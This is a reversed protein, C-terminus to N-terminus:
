WATFGYCIIIINLFIRQNPNNLFLHSKYFISTAFFTIAGTHSSPMGFGKKPSKEPRPQKIIRKLLKGFLSTFVAAVIYYFPLPSENTILIYVVILSVVYKASRGITSLASPITIGPTTTDSKSASFSNNSPMARVSWSISHCLSRSTFTVIDQSRLLHRNRLTATHSLVSSAKSISSKTVSGAGRKPDHLYNISFGQIVRLLDLTFLAFLPIYFRM